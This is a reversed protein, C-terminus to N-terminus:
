SKTEAVGSLWTILPELAPLLAARLAPQREFKALGTL